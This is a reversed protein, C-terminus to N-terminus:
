INLNRQYQRPYKGMQKAKCYFYFQFLVQYLLIKFNWLDGPCRSINSFTCTHVHTYCSHKGKRKPVPPQKKKIQLIHTAVFLLFYNADSPSANIRCVFGILGSMELLLWLVYHVGPMTCALGWECWSLWDYYTSVWSICKCHDGNIDSVIIRGTLRSHGCPYYHLFLAEIEM